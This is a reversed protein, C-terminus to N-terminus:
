KRWFEKNIFFFAILSSNVNNKIRFSTSVLFNKSRNPAFSLGFNTLRTYRFSFIFNGVTITKERNIKSPPQMMLTFFQFLEQEDFCLKHHSAYNVCEHQQCYHDTTFLETTRLSEIIWLLCNRNHKVLCTVFFMQPHFVISQNQVLKSFINENLLKIGASRIDVFFNSANTVPASINM